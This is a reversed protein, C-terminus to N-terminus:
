TCSRGSARHPPPTPTHAPPPPGAAVNGAAGGVDLGAQSLLVELGSRLAEHDDIVVLKTVLSHAYGEHAASFDCLAVSHRCRVFKRPRLNGPIAFSVSFSIRCSESIEYRM